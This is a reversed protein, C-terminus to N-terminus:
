AVFTIRAHVLINHSTSLTINAAKQLSFKVGKWISVQRSQLLTLQTVLVM